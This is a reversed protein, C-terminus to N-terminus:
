AVTVSRVVGPFGAQGHGSRSGGVLRRNKGGCTKGGTITADGDQTLDGELDVGLFNDGKDTGVARAFGGGEGSETPHDWELVACDVKETLIKSFEGAMGYGTESKDMDGFASAKELIHGDFFVKKHTGGHTGIFRTNALVKLFAVVRKTAKVLATVGEGPSEAAAFLLHSRDSSTKHGSGSQEHKILRTETEGGFKHILDEGDNLLDMLGSGGDQEHLLVGMHGKGDGVSGIGHGGAFDDESAGAFGEEVVGFDTLEVEAFVLTARSNGQFCFFDRGKNQKPWAELSVYRPYSDV